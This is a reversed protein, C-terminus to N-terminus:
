LKIRVEVLESCVSDRKGVDSQSVVLEVALRLSGYSGVTDEASPPRCYHIGTESSYVCGLPLRHPLLIAKTM